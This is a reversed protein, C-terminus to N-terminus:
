ASMQGMVFQSKSIHSASLCLFTQPLENESEVGLADSSTKAIIISGFDLPWMGQALGRVLM